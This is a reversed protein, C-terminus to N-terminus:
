KLVRLDDQDVGGSSGVWLRELLPDAGAPGKLQRQCPRGILCRGHQEAAFVKKIKNWFGGGSAVPAPAAAVPAAPAPEPAETWVNPAPTSPKITKVAAEMVPKPPAKASSVAEKAVEDVKQALDYSVADSGEVKQDGRVRSIEFNPSHLNANPVLTVVARHRGEIEALPM